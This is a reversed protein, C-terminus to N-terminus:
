LKSLVCNDIRRDSFYGCASRAAIVGAGCILAGGITWAALGCGVAGIAAMTKCEAIDTDYARRCSGDGKFAFNATVEPNIHSATNFNPDQVEPYGKKLTQAKLYASRM